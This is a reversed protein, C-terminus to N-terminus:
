FDANFELPQYKNKSNMPRSRDKPSQNNKRYYNAVGAM